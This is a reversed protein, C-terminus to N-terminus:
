SLLLTKQEDNKPKLLYKHQYALAVIVLELHHSIRYFQQDDTNDKHRLYIVKLNNQCPCKKRDLCNYKSKFNQFYLLNYKIQIM